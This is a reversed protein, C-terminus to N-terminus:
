ASAASGSAANIAATDDTIGDGKAGSQKVSYSNGPDVSSTSLAVPPTMLFWNMGNNTLQIKAGPGPIDGPAVPDNTWRKIVQPLGGGVQLTPATTTNTGNTTLILLATTPICPLNPVIISDPSGGAMVSSVCQTAPQAVAQGAWLAFLLLFWM